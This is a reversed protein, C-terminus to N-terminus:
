VNISFVYLRGLFLALYKECTLFGNFDILVINTHAWIWHLKRSGWLSHPYGQKLTILWQGWSWNWTGGLVSGSGGERPLGFALTLVPFSFTIGTDIYCLLWVPDSPIDLEANNWATTLKLNPCHIRYMIIFFPKKSVQQCVGKLSSHSTVEWNM